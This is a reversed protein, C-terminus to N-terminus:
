QGRRAIVWRLRAKLARAAQVARESLTPAFRFVRRQMATEEDESAGRARMEALEWHYRAWLSFYPRDMAALYHVYDAFPSAGWPGAGHREHRVLPERNLVVADGHCLLLAAYVNDWVPEGGPYARFRRRNARWWDVSVAFADIGATEIGLDFGTAGDFDMRSFAIGDRGEAVIRDIAAQTLHVDSNAYVFWRCGQREAIEALRDFAESVIPKRPGGRRSVLRSDLRLAPYRRFGDVEFSEDPWQLNALRVGSLARWSALAASQRRGADGSAAFANTGLLVTM